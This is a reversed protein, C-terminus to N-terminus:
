SEIPQYQQQQQLQYQKFRDLDSMTQKYDKNGKNAAYAGLGLIGAGKMGMSLAQSQPDTLGLSVNNGLVRSGANYTRKFREGVDGLSKLPSSFGRSPMSDNKFTATATNIANPVNGMIRKAAPLATNKLTTLAPGINKSFLGIGSTINGLISAAKVLDSGLKTIM